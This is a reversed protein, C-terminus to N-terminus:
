KLSVDKTKKLCCWAVSSYNIWYVSRSNRLELVPNLYQHILPGGVIAFMWYYLVGTPHNQHGRRCIIESVDKMSNAKLRASNLRKGRPALCVQTWIRVRCGLCHVQPFESVQDEAEEGIFPFSHCRGGLIKMLIWHSFVFRKASAQCITLM